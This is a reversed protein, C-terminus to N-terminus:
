ELKEQCHLAYGLNCYAATSDPRLAVAVSYFQVAGAFEQREHLGHGLAFNLWFDGPYARQGDQLTQIAAEALRSQKLTKALVVLTAPGQAKVDITKALRLLEAQSQPTVPQGWAARLRDRLQDRDLGRAVAVLTKRSPEGEIRQVIMWNDLAA